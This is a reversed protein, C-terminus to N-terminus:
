LLASLLDDELEERSKKSKKLEAQKSKIEQSVTDYIKQLTLLDAQEIGHKLIKELEKESLTNLISKLDVTHTLELKM